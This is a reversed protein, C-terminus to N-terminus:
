VLLEVVHRRRKTRIEGM